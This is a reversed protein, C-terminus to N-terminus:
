CTNQPSIGDSLYIDILLILVNEFYYLANHINSTHKNTLQHTHAHTHAHTHHTCARIHKIKNQIGLFAVSVNLNDAVINVICITLRPKLLVYLRRSCQKWLLPLAQRLRM